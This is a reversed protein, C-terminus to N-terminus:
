ARSTDLCEEVFAEAVERREGETLSMGEGTSGAIYAGVVGSGVLHDIIRPVVELKLDGAADMPTVTAAVLGKLKLADM